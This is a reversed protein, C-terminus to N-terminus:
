RIHLGQSSDLYDQLGELSSLDYTQTHNYNFVIKKKSTEYVKLYVDIFKGVDTIGASYMYTKAIDKALDNIMDDSMPLSAM